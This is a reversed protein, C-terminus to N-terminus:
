HEPRISQQAFRSKVGEGVRGGRLPLPLTPPPIITHDASVENGDEDCDDDIRDQRVTQIDDGAM